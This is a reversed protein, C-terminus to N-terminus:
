NKGLEEVVTTMRSKIIANNEGQVANMFWQHLKQKESTSLELRLIMDISKERLVVPSSQVDQIIFLAVSQLSKPLSGFLLADAARLRVDVDTDSQFIQVLRQEVEPTRMFRLAMVADARLDPNAHRTLNLILEATSGLGANGLVALSEKLDEVDGDAKQINVIYDKLLWEVRQTQTQGLTRAAGGLALAATSSFDDSSNGAQASLFELTDDSPERLGGLVPVIASFARWDNVRESALATLIAQVKATGVAGAAAVLPAFAEDESEIRRLLDIVAQLGQGGTELSIIIKKFDDLAKNRVLVDKSNLLKILREKDFLQGTRNQMEKPMLLDNQSVLKDQAANERFGAHIHADNRQTGAPDLASGQPAALHSDRRNISFFRQGLLVVAFVFGVCLMMWRMRRRRNIFQDTVM